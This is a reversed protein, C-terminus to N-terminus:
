IRDQLHPKNMLWTKSGRSNFLKENPPIVFPDKRECSIPPLPEEVPYEVNVNILLRTEQAPNLQRVRLTTQCMKRAIAGV